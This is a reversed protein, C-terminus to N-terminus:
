KSNDALSLKGGLYLIRKTNRLKGKKEIINEKKLNMIKLFLSITSFGYEHQKYTYQYVHSM